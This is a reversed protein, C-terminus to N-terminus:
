HNLPTGHWLWRRVTVPQGQHEDERATLPEFGARLAVRESARNGEITECAVQEFGCEFLWACLARAASTAAGRGRGAEVLAFLVEPTDSQLRGAGCTGIPVAGDLIVFRQVLGEAARVLYADIRRRTQAEDLEPPYSTWRVVDPSRTLAQEIAWDDVTLERLTFPGAKLEM